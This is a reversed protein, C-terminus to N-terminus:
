LKHREADDLCQSYGVLRLFRMRELKTTPPTYDDIAQVKACVPCVKGQGVVCGLYPVAAKM